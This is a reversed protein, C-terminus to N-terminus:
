EVRATKEECLTNITQRNYYPGAHGNPERGGDNGERDETFDGEPSDVFPRLTATDAGHLAGLLQAIGQDDRVEILVVREEVTGRGFLESFPKGAVDFSELGEGREVVVVDFRQGIQEGLDPRFAGFLLAVPTRGDGAMTWGRNEM